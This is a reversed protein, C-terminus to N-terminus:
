LGNAMVWKTIEKMGEDQMHFSLEDCNAFDGDELWLAGETEYGVPTRGIHAVTATFVAKCFPKTDEVIYEAIKKLNRITVGTEEFTERIAAQEISEGLEAKGGPFEVGRSSHRTLLWKGEHKLVILVHRAELTSSSEGFTLEVRIGNLDQFVTMQTVEKKGTYRIVKFCDVFIPFNKLSDKQVKM